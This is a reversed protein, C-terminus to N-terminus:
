RPAPATGPATSPSAPDSVADVAYATHWSLRQFSSAETPEWRSGGPKPSPPPDDSITQCPDYVADDGSGEEPVPAPVPAPAPAPAPTGPAPALASTATPTPGTAPGRAALRVPATYVTVPVRAEYFRSFAMAQTARGGRMMFTFQRTRTNVGAAQYQGTAPCYGVVVDTSEPVPPVTGGEPITQVPPAPPPTGGPASCDGGAPPEPKPELTKCGALALGLAAFWVLAKKM